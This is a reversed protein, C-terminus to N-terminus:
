PFIKKYISSIPEEYTKEFEESTCSLKITGSTIFMIRDLMDDLGTAMESTILVAGEKRCSEIMQLVPKRYTKEVNVIPDDFVYVDAKRCVVMITEVLQIETPTLSDMRVFCDIDFHKLLKVAKNYKFDEFFRDYMDLLEEVNSQYNVFPQEPLYSIYSNTKYSPKKGMIRVEGDNPQMLGCILKVLTTKGSGDPGLIGIVQGRSISFSCNKIVYSNRFKRSLQRCRLLTKRNENDEYSKFLM